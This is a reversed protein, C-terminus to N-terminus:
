ESWGGRLDQYAFGFKRICIYSVSINLDTKDFEHFIRIVICFTNALKWSMKKSSFALCLECPNLYDSSSNRFLEMCISPLKGFINLACIEFEGQDLGHRGWPLRRPKWWFKGGKEEVKWSFEKGKKFWVQEKVQSLLYWGPMWLSYSHHDINDCHYHNFIVMCIMFFVGKWVFGIDMMIMVILIVM